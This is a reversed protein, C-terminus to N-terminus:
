CIFCFEINIAKPIFISSPNVSINAISQLYKVLFLRSVSNLIKRNSLSATTVFGGKVTTKTKFSYLTIPIFATLSYYAKRERYKPTSALM